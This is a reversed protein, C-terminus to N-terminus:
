RSVGTLIRAIAPSSSHSAGWRGNDPAYAIVNAVTKFSPGFSILSRANNAYSPNAGWAFTGGLNGISTHKVVAADGCGRLVIPISTGVGARFTTLGAVDIDSDNPCLDSVIRLMRWETALGVDGGVVNGCALLQTCIDGTVPSMLMAGLSHNGSLGDRVNGAVVLGADVFGGFNVSAMTIAKGADSPMVGRRLRRSGGNGFANDPSGNSTIKWVAMDSSNDPNDVTGVIAASNDSLLVADSGRWSYHEGVEIVARGANGYSADLEGNATICAERM